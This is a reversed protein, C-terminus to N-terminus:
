SSTKGQLRRQKLRGIYYEKMKLCGSSFIAQKVALLFYSTAYAGMAKMARAVNIGKSGASLTSTKARNLAGTKLPTGLIMTKDLSPNLTLTSFREGNAAIHRRIDLISLFKYHM